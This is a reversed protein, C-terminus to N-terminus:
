SMDVKRNVVRRDRKEASKKCKTVQLGLKSAERSIWLASVTRMTNQCTENYMEAMVSPELCHPDDADAQVCSSSCWEAFGVLKQEREAPTLRKTAQSSGAQSSTTDVPSAELFRPMEDLSLQCGNNGVVLQKRCDAQIQQFV